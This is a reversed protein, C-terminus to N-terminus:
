DDHVKGRRLGSLARGPIEDLEAYALSLFFKFEDILRRFTSSKRKELADFLNDWEYAFKLADNVYKLQQKIDSKGDKGWVAGARYCYTLITMIQGTNAVVGEGILNFAVDNTLHLVFDEKSISSILKDVSLFLADHQSVLHTLEARLSFCQQCLAVEEEETLGLAFCRGIANWSLSRKEFHTCSFCTLHVPCVFANIANGWSRILGIFYTSIRRDFVKDIVKVLRRGTTLIRLCEMSENRQRLLNKYHDATEKYHQQLPDGLTDWLVSARRTLETSKAWLEQQFLFMKVDHRFLWFPKIQKRQKFLLGEM